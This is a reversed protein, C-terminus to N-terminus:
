RRSLGHGVRVEDPPRQLDVKLHERIHDPTM